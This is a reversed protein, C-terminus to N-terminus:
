KVFMVTHGDSIKFSFQVLIQHINRVLWTNEAQDWCCCCWLSPRGVGEKVLSWSGFSCLLPSSPCSRAGSLLRASLWHSCLLLQLMNATFEGIFYIYAVLSFFSYLICREIIKCHNTVCVPLCEFGFNCVVSGTSKAEVFISMFYQFGHYSLLGQSQRRQELLKFARWTKPRVM